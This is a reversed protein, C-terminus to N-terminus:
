QMSMPMDKFLGLLGFLGFVGIIGFVGIGIRLLRDSIKPHEPSWIVLDVWLEEVGKEKKCM